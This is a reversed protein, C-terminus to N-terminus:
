RGLEFMRDLTRKARLRTSEPVTIEPQGTRLADEVKGLGNQKMYPCVQCPGVINKDPMETKLTSALGCETALFYAPANTERVYRMMDSTGGHMDANTIVGGDCEYHALVKLGPHQQRLVPLWAAAYGEHVICAGNWLVIEKEPIEQQLNRGMYKDPVFIIKQEPLARVIKPANASTVTVDCEAKVAATTNIYTVVPAGPHQERLKRVDEATISEALSCGAELSPLIVRKSPNLIKATEAMFNVGCFVIVEQTAAMAAKSLDLSDGIYDAIGLKIGDRMYYHALVVANQERKLVRIADITDLMEELQRGHVNDKATFLMRLEERSLLKGEIAM